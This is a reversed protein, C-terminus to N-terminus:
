AEVDSRGVVPMPGPHFALIREARRTCEFSLIASLRRASALADERCGEYIVLGPVNDVTAVWRGDPERRAQIPYNM